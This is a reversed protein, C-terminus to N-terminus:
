ESVQTQCKTAGHVTAQWAKRVMPKELCSYQLSSDWSLSRLLTDQMALLSKVMQAVLSAGRVYYTEVFIQSFHISFHMFSIFLYSIVTYGQSLCIM